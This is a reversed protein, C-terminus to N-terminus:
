QYYISNKKFNYSQMVRYFILYESMMKRTRIAKIGAIQNLIFNLDRKKLSM